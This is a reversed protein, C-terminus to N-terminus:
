QTSTKFFSAFRNFMDQRNFMTTTSYEPKYTVDQSPILMLGIAAELESIQYSHKGMEGKPQVFQASTGSSTPVFTCTKFLKDFWGQYLNNFQPFLKNLLRVQIHDSFTVSGNVLGENSACLEEFNDSTVYKMWSEWIAKHEDTILEHGSLADLFDQTLNNQDIVVPVDGMMYTRPLDTIEVFRDFIDDPGRTSPWLSNDLNDSTFTDPLDLSMANIRDAALIAKASLSLTTGEIDKITMYGERTEYSGLSNVLPPLFSPVDIKGFKLAKLKYPMGQQETLKLTEYLQTAGMYNVVFNSVEDIQDLVGYRNGLTQIRSDLASETYKALEDFMSPRMKFQGIVRTGPSREDRFQENDLNVPVSRPDLMEAVSFSEKPVNVKTPRFRVSRRARAKNPNDGPVFGPEHELEDREKRKSMREKKTPM